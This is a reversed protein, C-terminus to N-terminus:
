LIFFKSCDGDTWLDWSRSKVRAAPPGLSASHRVECVGANPGRSAVKVSGDDINRAWGTLGYEDAREKLFQRFGVGQVIGKVSSQM